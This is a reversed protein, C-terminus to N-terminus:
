HVSGSQDAVACVADAPAPVAVLQLGAVWGLTRLREAVAGAALLVAAETPARSPAARILVVPGHENVGTQASVQPHGMAASAALDGLTAPAPPIAFGRRDGTGRRVAAAVADASGLGFLDAAEPRVLAAAGPGHEGPPLVLRALGSVVAGPTRAAKALVLGASGALEDAVAPATVVLPRGWADPEGALDRLPELGAVGIAIDTQGTRWPRGATDTVVVAVNRGTRTALESRLGRASADPDLPLAVVTGAATNSEDVGAAALVLGHRTRAVRLDGRRAVERDTEAAIVDDRDARLTRGEVKAVAKSSVVLVDGDLPGDPWAALLLDVLDDGAALDPLVGLAQVTLRM